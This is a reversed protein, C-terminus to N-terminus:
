VALAARLAVLAYAVPVADATTVLGAALRVAAGELIPRVEGVHVGRVDDGTDGPLSGVLRRSYGPM